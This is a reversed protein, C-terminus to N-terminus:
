VVPFTINFITGKGSVTQVKVSGKAAHVRDQVLNLGIGRGAHIGETEATSFGPSFIVKLLAAKNSADEKNILNLRLAKEAIKGFDLGSGDDGLKVYINAGTIKISLRIVGSENKGKAARDGPSEIGHAVSNRILQMLIEKIIRRPGKEIAENDIGDIIFKVNKGMDAAAKDVTKSLAEALIHKGQKRNIDGSSKFSNIKAITTKFGEKEQYLKELDISLNLMDYYSVEGEHERLEKIKAELSHAKNGFTNLGLIVANSKIAHVSQYIEVLKKQMSVTENRYVEDIQDFEYEADELFDGFVQPDVQFLEFFAKMEEQRKNEEEKLQQQLEIKATVDYISVLIFVEGQNVIPAFGCQFVKRHSPDTGVYHLETLPNIDDLMSQDFRHECVMQFYDKILDINQSSVSISLIDIFSKGMLDTQSFLEELYRSYQNQIIYNCDMFFLGIKLNDRMLAIKDREAEVIRTCADLLDKVTVVGSYMGNLEVVIPNYLRGFSRQMALKAVYDVPMNYDVRLFDTDMIERIPKRAHLTFGYRGGLMENLITSTLFGVALGNDIVVFKSIAPNQKIAEYVVEATENPSFFYGPQSLSGVKSTDNNILVRNIDIDYDDNAKIGTAVFGLIREVISEIDVVSQM